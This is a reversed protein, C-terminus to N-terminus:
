KIVSLDIDGFEKRMAKEFEEYTMNPNKTLLKRAYFEIKPKEPESPEGIDPKGWLAKTWEQSINSKDPAAESVALHELERIQDALVSKASEWSQKASKSFGSVDEKKLENLHDVLASRASEMAVNPRPQAQPPKMGLGPAVGRHMEAKPLLQGPAGFARGGGGGMGLGQALIQNAAPNSQPTPRRNQMSAIVQPDNRYHGLGMPGFPGGQPNMGGMPSRGRQYEAELEEQPRHPYEQTGRGSPSPPFMQSKREQYGPELKALLMDFAQIEPGILLAKQKRYEKMAEFADIDRAMNVATVAKEVKARSAQPFDGIQQWLQREKFEASQPTNPTMINAMNAEYPSPQYRGMGGMQQGVWNGVSPGARPSAFNLAM